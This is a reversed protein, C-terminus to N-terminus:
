PEPQKDVPMSEGTLIAEQLQLNKSWLLRLDAPVKDGAQLDVIDGPVLSEATVTTKVGDRRVVAKSTLMKDLAAIADEAKGEQMVGIIANILIVALIVSGDVWHGLMFVIMAAVLLIYILVNHCQSLFRQWVSRRVGRPLRNPGYQSLRKVAEDASLGQESSNLLTLVEAVDKAHWVM